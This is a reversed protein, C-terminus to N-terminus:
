ENNFVEAASCSACSDNIASLAGAIAIFADAASTATASGLISGHNMAPITLVSIRDNM